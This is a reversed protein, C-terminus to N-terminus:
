GDFPSCDASRITYYFYSDLINQLDKRQISIRINELTTTTIKGEARRYPIELRIFTKVEEETYGLWYLELKVTRIYEQAQLYPPSTILAQIAKSRIEPKDFVTPDSSDMGGYYLVSSLSQERLRAFTTLHHYADFATKYILDKLASEWDEQLLRQIEKQKAKSKFLKPVKHEAYSFHKSAKLLAITLITRYPNGEELGKVWGWYRCLRELINPNYWYELNEWAPRYFASYSQAMEDLMKQLMHPDLHAHQFLIKAPVIYNLLPNIDMLVANRNMLVAELGVTGSGAFPDIVWDGPKTYNKLCFRPIQPIFRAPYYFLGHTLYGTDRIESVLERFNVVIPNTEGIPLSKEWHLM